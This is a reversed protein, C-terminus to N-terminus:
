SAEGLCGRKPSEGTVMRVAAEVALTERGPAIECLVRRATGALHEAVIKVATRADGERVAQLIVVHERHRVEFDAHFRAHLLRVYRESQEAYSSITRAVTAGCGGVMRRHFRRHAVAWGALDNSRYTREMERLASAADRCEVPGLRGATLRVGLGELAIRAAYLLEIEEPVLGIVQSRQNPEASLLGEEQLMRFAERMPTRSVAFLRALEAQKLVTGEPIVGTIILDRLHAHVEVTTQRPDSIRLSTKGALLEFVSM